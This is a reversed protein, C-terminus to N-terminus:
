SFIFNVTAIIGIITFICLIIEILINRDEM